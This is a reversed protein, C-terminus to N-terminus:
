VMGFQNNYELERVDSVEQDAVLDLIEKRILRLDANQVRELQEPELHDELKFNSKISQELGQNMQDFIAMTPVGALHKVGVNELHVDMALNGIARHQDIGDQLEEICAMLDENEEFQVRIEPRLDDLDFYDYVSYLTDDLLDMALKVNTMREHYTDIMEQEIVFIPKKIFDTDELCIVNYIEATNDMKQDLCRAAYVGESIATTVKLANGNSLEYCTGYCGAGINDIIEVDLNQKLYHEICENETIRM